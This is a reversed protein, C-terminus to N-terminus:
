IFGGLYEFFIRPPTVRLETFPWQTQLSINMWCGRIDLSYKSAIEIFETILVSTEKAPVQKDLYETAQIRTYCYIRELIV